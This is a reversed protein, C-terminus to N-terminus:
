LKQDIRFRDATDTLHCLPPTGNETIQFIIENRDIKVFTIKESSLSNHIPQVVQCVPNPIFDTFRYITGSSIKLYYIRLQPHASKLDTMDIVALLMGPIIFLDKIEYLDIEPGNNSTLRKALIADPEITPMQVRYFNCFAIKDTM